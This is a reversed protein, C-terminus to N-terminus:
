EGGKLWRSVRGPHPERGRKRVEAEYAQQAIRIGEPVPVFRSNSPPLAKASHKRSLEARYADLIVAVPPRRAEKWTRVIQRLATEMAQPDTHKSIEDIYVIVAEDNWGTTAGVLYGVLMTAREKDM